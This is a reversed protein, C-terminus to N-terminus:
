QKKKRRNTQLSDGIKGRRMTVGRGPLQGSREPKEMRTLLQAALCIEQALEFRSLGLAIKRRRQGGVRTPETAISQGTAPGHGCEQDNVRDAKRNLSAIRRIRNEKRSDAREIWGQDDPSMLIPSERGREKKMVADEM